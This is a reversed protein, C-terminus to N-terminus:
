WETVERVNLWVSGEMEVGGSDSRVTTTRVVHPVVLTGGNMEGDGAAEPELRYVQLIQVLGRRHKSQKVVESM